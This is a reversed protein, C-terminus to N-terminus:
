YKEIRGFKFNGNDDIKVAVTSVCEGNVIHSIRANRLYKMREAPTYAIEVHWKADNLTEFAENAGDLTWFNNKM